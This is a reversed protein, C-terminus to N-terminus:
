YVEAEREASARNGIAVIVSIKAGHDVFDVSRVTGQVSKTCQIMSEPVVEPSFHAPRELTSSFSNSGLSLYVAIFADTPGLADLAREPVIDCDGSREPELPYTGVAIPVKPSM